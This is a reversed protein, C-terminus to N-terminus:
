NSSELIEGEENIFAHISWSNLDRIVRQKGEEILLDTYCNKQLAPYIYYHSIGQEEIQVQFIATDDVEANFIFNGLNYIIPKNKYFEIGQLTHAHHGVVMDAGADIYQKSSSVQEEELEHYGEKGYHIIAIVYDSEAKTKEIQSIMNTPDYCRFVGNSEETAGPTLIYKEARTANLFAVKYGGIILYYPMSAESLNHGAGVYPIQHTQFAELMDLFAEEGYDYVHNNALTVMDVGMEKYIELREPSARFTYQKGPMKSGRNSVTFESNAVMWDTQQMIDLIDQSLIGLVGQGRADYQPMIAWNDALSVDGVISITNTEKLPLITVNDMADYKKEYFDKLVQYSYGVIKHWMTTEYSSNELEKELKELSSPYEKEIWSLFEKEEKKELKQYIREEIPETKEEKTEKPNDYQIIARGLYIGIVVLFAIGLYAIIKKM